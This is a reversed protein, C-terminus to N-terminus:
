AKATDLLKNKLASSIQLFEPSLLLPYFMELLLKTGEYMSRLPSIAGNTIVHMSLSEKLKGADDHTLKVRFNVTKVPMFNSDVRLTSASSASTEERFFLPNEKALRYGKGRAVDIEIFLSSEDSLACIYEKSNLIKLVNNRFVFMEATVIKPGQVYLLGTDVALVDKNELKQTLLLSNTKSQQAFKIQKLNLLMELVDERVGNASAFEHKLNNIRVGTVAYGTLDSLLTRRLANGITVAQGIELPEILFTQAFDEGNISLSSASIIQAM